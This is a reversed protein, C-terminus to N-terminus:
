GIGGVHRPDFAGTVVLEGSVDCLKGNIILCARECGDVAACSVPQGSPRGVNAPPPVGL